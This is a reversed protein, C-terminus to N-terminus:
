WLYLDDKKKVFYPWFLTWAKFIQGSQDLHCEADKKNWPFSPFGGEPCLICVCDVNLGSFVRGFYWFDHKKSRTCSKQCGLGTGRLLDLRGSGNRVSMQGWVSGFAHNQHNQLGLGGMSSGPTRFHGGPQNSMYIYINHNPTTHKLGNHQEANRDPNWCNLGFFTVSDPAALAALAVCRGFIVCVQSPDAPCYAIPLVYQKNTLM